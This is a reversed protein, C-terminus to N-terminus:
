RHRHHGGCQSGYQDTPKQVGTDGDGGDCVAARSQGQQGIHQYQNRRTLQTSLFCFSPKFLKKLMQNALISEDTSERPSVSRHWITGCGSMFCTRRKHCARRWYAIPASHCEERQLGGCRQEVGMMLFTKLAEVEPANEM